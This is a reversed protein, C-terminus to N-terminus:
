NKVQVRFFRTPASTRRQFIITTQKPQKHQGIIEDIRWSAIQHKLDSRLDLQQFHTFRLQLSSYIIYVHTQLIRAVLTTSDSISTRNKQLRNM